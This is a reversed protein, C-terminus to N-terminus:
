MFEYQIYFLFSYPSMHKLEGKKSEYYTYREENSFFRSEILCNKPAVNTLLVGKILIEPEFDRVSVCCFLRNNKEDVLKACKTYVKQAIVYAVL